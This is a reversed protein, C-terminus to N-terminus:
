EFDLTALFSVFDSRGPFPFLSQIEESNKDGDGGVEYGHQLGKAAALLLSLQRRRQSDNEEEKDTKAALVQEWEGLGHRVAQPTNFLVQLVAGAVRMFDQIEFEAVDSPGPVSLLHLEDKGAFGRLTSILGYELTGPDVGDIIGTLKFRLEDKDKEDRFSFGESLGSYLDLITRVKLSSAEGMAELIEKWDTNKGARARAEPQALM